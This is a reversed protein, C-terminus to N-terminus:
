SARARRSRLGPRSRSSARPERGDLARARTPGAEAPSGAFPTAARGPCRRRRRPRLPATAVTGAVLPPWPLTVVALLMLAGAPLLVRLYGLSPLGQIGKVAFAGMALALGESACAAVAAGRFGFPPILILNLLVNSLLATVGIRLLMRDARHAILVNWLLMGVFMMPVYAALIRLADGGEAFEEGASFVVIDEAYVAYLITLPIAAILLVDLVRSTIQRLRVDDSAVFRSLAPLITVAVAAAVFSSFEIFRWAAGYIGVEYEPKLFALILADVRLYVQGLGLALALALAGRLVHRWAETDVVPRMPIMRTAALLCGLTTAWLGIVNAWVVGEFGYGAELAGLTLGLTVIRGAVNALAYWQQQLRAQFIPSISGTMLIAVAGVSGIVIGLRTQDSVPAVFAAGVVAPVLLLSIVARLPVTTRMYAEATSPHASIQRVVATSLGIDVLVVPIYLFALSATYDGYSEPGLSRTVAIFTVVSILSAVVTGVGQVITNTALRVLLRDSPGFVESM